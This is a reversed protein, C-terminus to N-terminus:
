PANEAAAFKTLLHRPLTFAEKEKNSEENDSAPDGFKLNAM